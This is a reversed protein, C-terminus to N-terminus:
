VLKLCAEGWVGNFVPNSQREMAKKLRPRNEEKWWLAKIKKASPEELEKAVTDIYRESSNDSESEM